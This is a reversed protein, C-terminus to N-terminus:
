SKSEKRGSRRSAAPMSFYVELADRVVEVVETGNEKAREQLKAFEDPTVRFNIRESRAPRESKFASM